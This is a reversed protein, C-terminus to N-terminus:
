INENNEGKEKSVTERDIEVLLELFEVLAKEAESAEFPTLQNLYLNQIEDQVTM